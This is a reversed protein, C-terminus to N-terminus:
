KDLLDYSDLRKLFTEFFKRSRELIARRETIDSTVKLTLDGLYYELLLYQLESSAIDELSENPSFLSIRDIIQQCEVYSSLTSVLAAQYDPASTSPYEDLKTRRSEAEAFAEQLSRSNSEM